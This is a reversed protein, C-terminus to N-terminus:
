VPAFVGKKKEIVEGAEAMLRLVATCGEPDLKTSNAVALIDMEHKLVGTIKTRSSAYYDRTVVYFKGDFGKVGVVAGTKMDPALQESLALADKKDTIILFGRHTLGAGQSGPQNSKQVLSFTSDPINYVGEPYKKSKFLNVFNRNELERLTELESQSFTKSVYDPTRNEFRIGLLKKLVFLDTENVTNKQPAQGLPATLLYFGDKLLFFEVEEYKAMESPLEMYVKDERRLIRLRAM